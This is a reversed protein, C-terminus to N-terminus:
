KYLEPAITYSASNNPNIATGDAAWGNCKVPESTNCSLYVCIKKGKANSDQETELGCDTPQISVKTGNKNLIKIYTNFVFERKDNNMNTKIFVKYPIGASKYNILDSYKDQDFDVYGKELLTSVYVNFNSESGKENTEPYDAEYARAATLISRIVNIRNAVEQKKKIKNVSVVSFTILLSLIVLVALVEILTFGKNKKM